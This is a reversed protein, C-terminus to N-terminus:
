NVPAESPETHAECPEKRKVYMLGYGLGVSEVVAIIGSPM